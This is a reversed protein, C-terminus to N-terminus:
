AAIHMRLPPLMQSWLGATGGANDGLSYQAIAYAAAAVGLCPATASIGMFQVWGCQGPSEKLSQVWETNDIQAAEVTRDAFVKRGATMDGRLVHWSIRPRLLDTGVGCEIITEFGAACAMRRTEFDHPGVFAIAPHSAREWGWGIAEPLGVAVANWRRAVEAIFFAKRANLWDDHERLLIQTRQNEVRFSDPDILRLIRKGFDGRYLFFLLALMAQGVQGQGIFTFGPSAELARNLVSADTLIELTSRAFEERHGPIQALTALAWFGLYGALAFCEVPSAAPLAELLNSLAIRGARADAILTRAGNAAVEVGIGIRLAVAHPTAVFRVRPGLAVPAPRPGDFMGTIFIEGRIQRELVSALAWVAPWLEEAREAAVAIHASQSLRAEFELPSVRGDFGKLLGNIIRDQTLDTTM